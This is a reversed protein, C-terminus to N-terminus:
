PTATWPGCKGLSIYVYLILETPFDDGGQVLTNLCIEGMIGWLVASELRGVPYINALVGGM